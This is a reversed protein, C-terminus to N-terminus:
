VGTDEAALEAMLPDDEFALADCALPERVAARLRPAPPCPQGREWVAEQAAARTRAAADPAAVEAQAARGLGDRAEARVVGPKGDPRIAVTVRHLAQAQRRAAIVGADQEDSYGWARRTRRAQRDIMDLTGLVTDARAGAFPAALTATADSRGAFPHFHLRVRAGFWDALWDGTFSYQQSFGPLMLVSTKLVMGSVKLPDTVRPAFLWADARPLARLQAASRRTWFEAPQWQGYRSSVTHANWDEIAARLAALVASLMPFHNRPDESNRRCRELLATIEAEEGRSRGVQAPEFSLRTWLAGFVLEVVKQHPSQARLIEIGARRCADSLLNAKSIGKELILQRPLGHQEFGLALTALLDEARYSGRPRATYSFGPIFYSRHDVMVLFQFRGPMVGFHWRPDDTPVCCIFNITGDDITWAEGPEYMQERGDEGWYYMLSGPSQCYDLWADRPNRYARVAAESVRVANRQSPTLAPRGAAARSVIREALGADLQGARAARLAAQEPSGANWTRNSQLVLARITAADAEGLGPACRALPARRGRAPALAAADLVPLRAAAQHWQYISAMPVGLRAAVDPWSTGAQRLERARIVLAVRQAGAALERATFCPPPEPAPPIPTTSFDFM